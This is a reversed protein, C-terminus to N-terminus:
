KIGEKHYHGSLDWEGTSDKIMPEVFDFNQGYKERAVDFSIGKAVITKGTKKNKLYFTYFSKSVNDMKEKNESDRFTSAGKMSFKETNELDEFHFKLQMEDQELIIKELEKKNKMEAMVERCTKNDSSDYPISDLWSQEIYSNLKIDEVDYNYPLDENKIYDGASLEAERANEAMVYAEGNFSVRFLKKM